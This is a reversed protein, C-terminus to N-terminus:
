ASRVRSTQKHWLSSSLTVASRWGNCRARQEAILFDVQFDRRSRFLEMLFKSSFDELAERQAHELLLQLSFESARV